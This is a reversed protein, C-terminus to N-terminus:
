VELMKDIFNDANILVFPVEGTSRSPRRTSMMLSRGSYLTPVLKAPGYPWPKISLRILNVICTITFNSLLSDLSKNPVM